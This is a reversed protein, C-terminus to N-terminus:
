RYVETIALDPCSIACMGCGSCKNETDVFEVVSNGTQGSIDSKRILKRPCAEICLYCSKCREANIVAKPMSNDEKGVVSVLQGLIKHEM